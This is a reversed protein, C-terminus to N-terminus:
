KDNRSLVFAILPPVWAFGLGIAVTWPDAGGTLALHVFVVTVAALGAVYAVMITIAGASKMAEIWTRPFPAIFFLAPIVAFGLGIAVTWPDAGGTLALHVFVVIVTVFLAAAAVMIIVAGVLEVVLAWTCPLDQREPVLSEETKM